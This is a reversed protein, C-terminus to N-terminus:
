RFDDNNLVNHWRRKMAASSTENMALRRANELIENIHDPAQLQAIAENFPKAGVSEVVIAAKNVKLYNIMAAYAPGVAVVPVGSALYESMKTAINFTSMNRMQELFSIPLLLADYQQMTQLVMAPPLNAKLNINENRLGDPLSQINSYIDLLLGTGNIAQAVNQLVDLQWAAVAGFYGIKINGTLPKPNVVKYVDAPGFLVTSEIGFTKKYFDHMATSIVFVHEAEQLHKKFLQAVGTPYTWQGSEYKVLHDDMVWSIYRVKKHAKLCELAYISSLGQPCVLGNIVADNEFKSALIKAARIAQLKIVPARRSIKFALSRGIIARVRDSEWKSTLDLQNKALHATIPLDYAFRNTHAFCKIQKLDDGAIRQLTLGGGHQDSVSMESLYFDFKIM